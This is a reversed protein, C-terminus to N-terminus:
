SPRDIATQWDWQALEQLLREILAGAAPYADPKTLQWLPNSKGPSNTKEVRIVRAGGGVQVELAAIKAPDLEPLVRSSPAIRAAQRPREVFYIFAFLIAAAALLFVTPRTNVITEPRL